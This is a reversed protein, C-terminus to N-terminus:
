KCKNCKLFFFPLGMNSCVAFERISSVYDHYCDDEFEVINFRDITQDALACYLDLLLQDLKDNIVRDWYHDFFSILPDIVDSFDQEEYAKKLVAPIFPMVFSYGVDWHISASVCACFDGSRFNDVGQEM